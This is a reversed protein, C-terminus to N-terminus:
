DDYYPEFWGPAESPWLPGLIGQDSVDIANGFRAGKGFWPRKLRALVDFDHACAEALLEKSGDNPDYALVARVSEDGCQCAWGAAPVPGKHIAYALTYGAMARANGAHQAADGIFESCVHELLDIQKAVIPMCSDAIRVNPRPNGVWMEASVLYHQIASRTDLPGEPATGFPPYTLITIRHACRVAYAVISREPLAELKKAHPLSEM